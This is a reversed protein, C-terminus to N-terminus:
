ILNKKTAIWESIVLTGVDGEGNVQSDANIQSKPIWVDNGDIEVLIANDTEKQVSINDFEVVKEEKPM